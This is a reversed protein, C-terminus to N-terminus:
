VKMEMYGLFKQIMDSTGEEYKEFPFTIGMKEYKEKCLKRFPKCEVKSICTFPKLLEQLRIAEEKNDNLGPVVVHRIWTDIKREELLDLFNIVKKLPIGIHKRYMEETTMKIDLLVLDTFVLLADVSDNLICGSTDLCTSIEEKKCLRFLETVFEAQCLAEGGSVTVGGRFGFYGRYHLIKDIVEQPTALIRAEEKDWTDPNHCYGCRLPCGQMFVLFRIGPGDMTAMSQYSHIYGYM